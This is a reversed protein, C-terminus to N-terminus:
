PSPFRPPHAAVAPSASPLGTPLQQQIQVSHHTRLHAYLLQEATARRQRQLEYAIQDRVAEFSKLRAPRAEILKLLFLGEGTSIM